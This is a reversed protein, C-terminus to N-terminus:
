RAAQKMIWALTAVNIRARGYLQGFHHSCHKEFLEPLRGTDLNKLQENSLGAERLARLTWYTDHMIGHDSEIWRWVEAHDSVNPMEDHCDACLPILNEVGDSGGISRPVIHCKQCKRLYGCRWCRVDAEDWDCGIDGEYVRDGWHAVADKIWQPASKRRRAISKEQM